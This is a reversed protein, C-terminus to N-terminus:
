FASLLKILSEFSIRRYGKPTRNEAIMGKDWAARDLSWYLTAELKQKGTTATLAASPSAPGAPTQLASAYNCKAEIKGGINMTASILYPVIEDSVFYGWSVNTSTNKRPTLQLSGNTEM